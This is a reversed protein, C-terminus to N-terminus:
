QNRCLGCLYIAGKATRTLSAQILPKGKHIVGDKEFDAGVWVHKDMCNFCWKRLCKKCAVGSKTEHPEAAVLVVDACSQCRGDYVPQGLPSQRLMGPKWLCKKHFFALHDNAQKLSMPNRASSHDNCFGCYVVSSRDYHEVNYIRDGGQPWCLAMKRMFCDLFDFEDVRLELKQRTWAEISKDLLFITSVSSPPLSKIKLDNFHSGFEHDFATICRKKALAIAQASRFQKVELRLIDRLSSRAVVDRNESNRHESVRPIGRKFYVNNSFAEFSLPAIRRTWEIM